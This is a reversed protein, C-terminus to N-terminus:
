CPVEVPVPSWYCAGWHRYREDQTDWVVIGESSGCDTCEMM